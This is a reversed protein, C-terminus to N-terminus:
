HKRDASKGALAVAALVGGVAVVAVLRRRVPSVVDDPRTM